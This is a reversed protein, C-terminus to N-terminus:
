RSGEIVRAGEAVGGSVVFATVAASEADLPRVTRAPVM